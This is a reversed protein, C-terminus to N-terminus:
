PRGEPTPLMLRELLGPLDRFRRTEVHLYVATTELCRHGLIVQLTRLDAGAELMHTAYSHRLTHPTARKPLGLAAVLGRCTKQVSDVCLPRRPDQGPFLWPSPRRDRWYERLVALLRPSLPVQRDKRGKGQRVVVVMRGSDIDGPRLRLAEEIRLGCAYLTQLTVRKWGAPAAEFLRLVDAPALVVPLRKPRRAFPVMPVADPRNLTVGYLLKLASVTQSFTSWSRGRRILDLLYQRVDEPGLRDPSRNFRRAFLAVRAVYADITRPAYNHLRLDDTYRRRLPTV